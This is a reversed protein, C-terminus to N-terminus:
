RGREREVQNVKGLLNKLHENNPIRSEVNALDFVKRADDFRGLMTLDRIWHYFVYTYNTRFNEYSPDLSVGQDLLFAALNYRRGKEESAADLAWNNLAVLLNTWAQENDRDLYLAKINAAAAEAHMKKAHYDVGINYYVTAILQVPTIERHKALIDGTPEPTATPAIRQLTALQRERDSQLNFWTPCTTEINMFTAEDFRVRSLAHGPMELASVNLGVKEALCNFLITASVCNFHGTEMVKSLETCDISYPRTLIERHMAEFLARTLAQPTTQGATQNQALVKAALADLRAEYSRILEIDRIGEAIMAARFLDFREWNANEADHLLAREVPDIGRLIVAYQSTPINADTAKRSLTVLFSDAPLTNASVARDGQFTLIDSRYLDRDLGSSGLCLLGAVIALLLAIRGNAIQKKLREIPPSPPPM